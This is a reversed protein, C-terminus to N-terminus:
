KGYKARLAQLRQMPDGGAAAPAAGKKVYGRASLKNSLTANSNDVVAQLGAIANEPNASGFLAGLSDPSKVLTNLIAMDPGSIAGLEETTKQNLKIKTDLAAMKDADPGTVKFTGNKRILDIYEKVADQVTQTAAVGERLKGVETVSPKVSPDQDYGPIAVEAAQEQKKQAAKNGQVGLLLQTKLDSALGASYDSKRKQLEDQLKASLMKRDEPSMPKNAIAAPTLKSGTWSDALAALPSLDLRSDKKGLIDQISKEYIGIGEQQQKRARNASAMYDKILAEQPSPQQAQAQMPMQVPMAQQAPAQPQAQQLQAMLLEEESPMESANMDQWASFDM